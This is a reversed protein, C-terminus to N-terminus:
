RQKGAGFFIFECRVPRCMHLYQLWFFVSPRRLPPFDM